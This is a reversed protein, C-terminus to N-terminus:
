HGRDPFPMLVLVKRMPQQFFSILYHVPLEAGAGATIRVAITQSPLLHSPLLFTALLLPGHHPSLWSRYPHGQPPNRAETELGKCPSNSCAEPTQQDTLKCLAKVFSLEQGQLPSPPLAPPPSGERTCAGAWLKAPQPQIWPCVMHNAM